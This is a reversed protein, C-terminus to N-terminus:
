YASPYRPPADDPDVAATSDADMQKSTDAGIDSSFVDDVVTGGASMVRVKSPRAGTYIFQGDPGPQYNVKGSCEMGGAPIFTYTVQTGVACDLLMWFGDDVIRISPRGGSRTGKQLADALAAATGVARAPMAPPGKAAGGRLLRLIFLVVAIMPVAFCILGGFLRSIGGGGTTQVKPRHSPATPPPSAPAPASVPKGVTTPAAASRTELSAVVRFGIDANRSRPDARFRAASRTNKAERNWSGGRLVRRPKDSLNPNTQLPDTQPGNQYPAYWDRCWEAVNGGIHLGWPNKPKSTVPHTSNGANRKSWAIDLRVDEGNGANHWPTTTGARAAYEWQAETPLSIRRNSRSELWRCFAEADPLTIITVPHDERQTFGPNRWTFEKRQSLATGDWGFGGSPGSEAETRYGTASAFQAWQARTVATEGLYFGQTLNVYRQTEDAGRGPEDVPSGQMFGGPPIYRLHMRVGGGLDLSLLPDAAHLGAGLLSCTLFLLTRASM